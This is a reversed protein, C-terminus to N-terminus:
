SSLLSGKRDFVFVRSDKKAAKMEAVNVAESKTAFLEGNGVRDSAKRVYWGNGNQMVFYNKMGKEVAQVYEQVQKNSKPPPPLRKFKM